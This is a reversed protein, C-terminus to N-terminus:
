MKLQSLISNLKTKVSADMRYTDYELVFGGILDPDVETEFEVTGNTKSEVMQRLRNETEASVATATTLKGRIINKYKRYLTIYSNAMFQLFCERGEKLVLSLFAKTLGTPKSGAASMLLALKDGLKVTPNDITPRLLPVEIYSRALSQMDAYVKDEIGADCSGKLLARAYRVSIVGIDM